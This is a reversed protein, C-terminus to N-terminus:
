IVDTPLGVMTDLQQVLRIRKIRVDTIEVTPAGINDLYELHMDLAHIEGRLAMLSELKEEELM